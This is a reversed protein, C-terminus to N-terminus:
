SSKEDPREGTTFNFVTQKTDTTTTTEASQARANPRQEKPKPNRAARYAARLRNMTAARHRSTQEKSKARSM